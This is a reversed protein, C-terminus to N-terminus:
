AMHVRIWEDYDVTVAQFIQRMDTSQIYTMIKQQLESVLQVTQTEDGPMFWLAGEVDNQMSTIARLLETRTKKLATKKAGVAPQLSVTSDLPLKKLLNDLTLITHLLNEKINEGNFEPQEPAKPAVFEQIPSSPADLREALSPLLKRIVEQPCGDPIDAWTKWTEYPFEGKNSVLLNNANKLQTNTSRVPESKEKLGWMDVGPSLRFRYHIKSVEKYGESKKRKVEMEPLVEQDQIFVVGRQSLQKFSILTGNKVFVIDTDEKRPTEPTRYPVVGPPAYGLWDIHTEGPLTQSSARNLRQTTKPFYTEILAYPCDGPVDRWTRLQSLIIERNKSDILRVGKPKDNKWVWVHTGPSLTIEYDTYSHRGNRHGGTRKVTAWQEKKAIDHDGFFQPSALRPSPKEFHGDKEFIVGPTFRDSRFSFKKEIQPSDEQELPPQEPKDIPRTIGNCAEIWEIITRNIKEDTVQNQIRLLEKLFIDVDGELDPLEKVTEVLADYGPGPMYINGAKKESPWVTDEFEEYSESSMNQALSFFRTDRGQKAMVDRLFKALDPRGFKKAAAVFDWPSCNLRSFIYLNESFLPYKDEIVWQTRLTEKENTNWDKPLREAFSAFEESIIDQVTSPKDEKYSEIEYSFEVVGDSYTDDDGKHAGSASVWTHVKIKVREHFFGEKNGERKERPSLPSETKIGQLLFHEFSSDRDRSM